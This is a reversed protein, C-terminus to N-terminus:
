QKRVVSNVVVDSLPVDPVGNVTTTAVAGIADMVELGQVIKGFVAYGPNAADQYDLAPNDALNFYFQSTASNPDATRAMAISGRQNTLGNNSELAIPAFVQPQAVLGATFGGGQIVFAAVVRHFLTKSYYGLQVYNLFNNVSIPAAGPNLEVVMSGMTTDFNVQPAPVTFAKAFILAGSKDRIQVGLEGTATVSCAFVLQGLVMSAPAPPTCNAITPVIGNDLTALNNGSIIFEAQAGYYLNRAQIDAIVPGNGGGSGCATLLALCLLAFAHKM